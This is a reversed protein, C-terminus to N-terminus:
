SLSVLQKLGENGIIMSVSGDGMMAAGEFIKSDTKLGSVPKVVVKQVGIIESASLAYHKGQIDVSIMILKSNM